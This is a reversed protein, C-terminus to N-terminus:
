SQEWDRECSFYIHRLVSVTCLWESLGWSVNVQLVLTLQFLEIFSVLDQRVWRHLFYVTKLPLFWVALFMTNYTRRLTLIIHLASLRFSDM